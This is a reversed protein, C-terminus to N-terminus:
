FSDSFSFLISVWGGYLGLGTTTSGEPLTENGKVFGVPNIVGATTDIYMTPEVDWDVTTNPTAVFETNEEVQSVAM